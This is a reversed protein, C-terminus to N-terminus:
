IMKLELLITKCLDCLEQKTVINFILQDLDYLEWIKLFQLSPERVAHVFQM